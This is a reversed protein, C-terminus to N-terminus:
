ADYRDSQKQAGVGIAVYSRVHEIVSHDCNIEFLRGRVGVLFNGGSMTPDQPDRTFFNKRKFLERVKEVFECVMYPYLDKPPPPVQLEYELLQGMRFSTTFGILFEGVFFIKKARQLTYVHGNSACSDAGMHVQGGEVVAAICTM